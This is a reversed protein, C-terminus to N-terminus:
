IHILSLTYRVLVHDGHRKALTRLENLKDLPLDADIHKYSAAKAHAVESQLVEAVSARHFPLDLQACSSYTM